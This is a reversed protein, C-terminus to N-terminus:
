SVKARVPEIISQSNSWHVTGPYGRSFDEAWAWGQEPDHCSSCSISADGGLRPDFFLLKGLEIKADSQKNDSPIPMEISDLPALPDVTGALLETSIVIGSFAIVAASLSPLTSRKINQM